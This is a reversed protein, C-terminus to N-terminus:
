KKLYKLPWPLLNRRVATYYSKEAGFGFNFYAIGPVDSGAFDFVLGTGAKERIAHDVLLFMAHNKKGAPSSACVLFTYRGAAEIFWGATLLGEGPKYVCLINGTNNQLSITTLQQLTSYFNRVPSTLRHDLHRRIFRTFVAPGPGTKVRLGSHVAKQINRRCNRHYRATLQMYAPSLDVTCNRRSTYQFKGHTPINCSNLQIDVYRVSSPIAHLFVNIETASLNYPSFVGLQQTFCPQYLYNIGFKRNGTLPMVATYDDQVLAEWGPCVADLWWSYVYPM